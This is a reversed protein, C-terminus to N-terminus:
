VRARFAREERMADAKLEEAEQKCVRCPRYSCHVACWEYDEPEDLERDCVSM